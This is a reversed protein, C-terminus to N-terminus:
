TNGAGDNERGQRCSDFIRRAEAPQSELYGRFGGSIVAAVIGQVEPNLLKLKTMSEFHPCPHKLSIIATLGQRTDRGTLRAQSGALYGTTRAWRNLTRTLATHLGALHTGGNLLEVTNVFGFETKRSDTTYQLAFEVEVVQKSARGIDVQVTKAGSIVTHLPVRGRNLYKVYDVLGAQFHFTTERPLIGTCRDILRFTVGHLLYALQRCREALVDFDFHFTTWVEQFIDKDPYFTITTGTTESDAMARVKEVTSTPIGRAYSQQWVYGERRVEARLWESVANVAKLGVGHLGGSVRYVHDYRPGPTWIECLEIELLSRGELAHLAVPLGRGNDSVTISNDADITIEVRNCHGAMAENVVYSLVEYLMHYIAHPGVGLYM